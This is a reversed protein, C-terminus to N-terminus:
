ARWSPSTAPRTLYNFLGLFTALILAGGLVALTGSVWGLRVLKLKAFLLWVLVIYLTLIILM